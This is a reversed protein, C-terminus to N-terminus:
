IAHARTYLLPFLFLLAGEAGEAEEKVHCFPCFPCTFLIYSLIYSSVGGNLPILLGSVMTLLGSVVMLLGSM